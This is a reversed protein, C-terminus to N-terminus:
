INCATPGVHKAQNLSRWPRVSMFSELIFVSFYEYIYICAVTSFSSSAWRVNYWISILMPIIYLTRLYCLFISDWLLGPSTDALMWSDEQVALTYGEGNPPPCQHLMVPYCRVVRREHTLVACLVVLLLFTAPFLFYATWYHLLHPGCFM